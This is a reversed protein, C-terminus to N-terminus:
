GVATPPSGAAAAFDAAPRRRHRGVRIRNGCVAAECWVRNGQRSRDVFLWRCRPNGCRRLAARDAALALTAPLLDDAIGDWGTSTSRVTGEEALRFTVDDLLGDVTTQWAGPDLGPEDVLARIVGRLARLRELQGATPTEGPDPIAHTTLFEVAADATALHDHATEDPRARRGYHAGPEHLSNALGLAAPADLRFTVSNMTM